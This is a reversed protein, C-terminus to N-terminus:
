FNKESSIARSVKHSIFGMSKNELWDTDQFSILQTSYIETDNTVKVTLYLKRFMKPNIFFRPETRSDVHKSWIKFLVSSVDATLHCSGCFVPFENNRFFLTCYMEDPFDQQM